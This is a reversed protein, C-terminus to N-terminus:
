SLGGFFQTFSSILKMVGSQSETRISSTELRFSKWSIQYKLKFFFPNDLFNLNKESDSIKGVFTTSFILVCKKINLVDKKKGGFIPGNILYHSFSTIRRMRKAHQIVVGVSM